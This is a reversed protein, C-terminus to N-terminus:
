LFANQPGLMKHIYWLLLVCAGFFTIFRTQLGVLVCAGVHRCTGVRVFPKVCVHAFTSTYVHIIFLALVRATDRTGLIRQVSHLPLVCAGVGPLACMCGWLYVHVSVKTSEGSLSINKRLCSYNNKYLCASPVSSPVRPPITQPDGLRTAALANHWTHQTRLM